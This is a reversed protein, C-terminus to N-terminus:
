KKNGRKLNIIIATICAMLYMLIDILDGTGSIINVAQLIEWIMGLTFVVASCIVSKRFDPVYLSYLFCCLSFAWLFDALYYRTFGLNLLSLCDRLRDISFISDAIVAVYTTERFLVYILGGIILSVFGLVTFLVRNSM